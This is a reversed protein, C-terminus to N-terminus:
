RREVDALPLTINFSLMKPELFAEGTRRVVVGSPRSTVTAFHYMFNANVRLTQRFETYREMNTGRSNCMLRLEGEIKDKAHSRRLSLSDLWVYAPRLEVFLSLVQSWPVRAQAVKVATDIRRRAENIDKNIRDVEQAKTRKEAVERVLAEKDAQLQLGAKTQKVYVVFAAGILLIGVILSLFVPLPTREVTRYQPPLLNIEIMGLM